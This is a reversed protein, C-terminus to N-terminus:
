ERDSEAGRDSGEELEALHVLADGRNVLPNLTLGVVMGPAGARPRALVDGFSDTIRGLRQGKAVRDGLQVAAHLLGSRSARVWRTSRSFATEPAPTTGSPSGAATGGASSEEGIMELARLVRMTGAVGASVAERTFRGPEGGEFLLVHAGAATAAERLSSDRVRAHITVPAGFAVACRRAEPDDLDTRIQPLNSRGDSGAHFDIGYGCRGVIEDMFQRALRSALSGKKTGPFSRNLDRRDPLYRSEQIFGFVNVIPVALVAGALAEPDLSSTVRQIIQVGVVEDGHVAGSLWIRPGPRRGHVVEVPLSVRTGTPLHAVPLELRRRQGPEIAQDGVTLPERAPADGGPRGSPDPRDDTM